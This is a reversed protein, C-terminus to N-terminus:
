GPRNEGGSGWLQPPWAGAPPTQRRPAAEAPGPRAALIAAVGGHPGSDSLTATGTSCATDPQSPGSPVDRRDPAAPKGLAPATLDALVRRAPVVAGDSGQKREAVPAPLAAVETAVPHPVPPTAAPDDPTDIRSPAPKVVGAVPQAVADGVPKTLPAVADTVPRLVSTVPELLTTVPQVVTAILDRAGPLLGGSDSAQQGAQDSPAQEAADARDALVGALLAFGFMVGLVLVVRVPLALAPGTHGLPLADPIEEM